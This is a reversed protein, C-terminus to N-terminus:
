AYGCQLPFWGGGHAYLIAGTPEVAPRYLRARMRGDAGPISLNRIEALDPQGDNFFLAAADRCCPGRGASTRHFRHRTRERGAESAGRRNGSRTRRHVHWLRLM